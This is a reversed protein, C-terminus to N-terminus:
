HKTRGARSMDLPAIGLRHAPSTPLLRCDGHRWDAFQPDEPCIGATSQLSTGETETYADLKVGEVRGAASYFINRSLRTVADIGILRIAGSAYLINGEMCCDHCRPFTVRADGEVICVNHWITNNWAMHNHLPWPVGVSLNDAVVCDEAQEDLYYGHRQAGDNRGIDHAINGRVTTGKTFTVYIAAGDNLVQMVRSIDNYEIRHGVGGGGGIGTYTTDQIENHSIELRTGGFNVGMAAPYMCGVHQVLNQTIASDQANLYIGGAGTTHTACGEIRIGTSSADGLKIAHGAVNRVTLDLLSCDRLLGSGTVAGDLKHAAFDAAILPTNTVSLTLGKLTLNTLPADAQGVLHIIREASPVIAEVNNMEEGPLPWYVLMGRTRDLYWQGPELMGERVNWVVYTRAREMWQGFGGPPHGAPNSFTLTQTAPDMSALGVSSDDWAHYITLEANKIDLWPGLDGEKYRLRTLEEATPKREWGGYTTSMWRVDFRSLHTFAGERPLRARPCFRGNVQLMRFDYQGATVAPLKAVWFREDLPDRAWNTIPHGGYLVPVEGSAAEVMLGSDCADLQLSVDYYVGGRVVIRKPAAPGLTRAADRARLFTAFPGDTHSANPEALTGSWHDDGHTSIYFTTDTM